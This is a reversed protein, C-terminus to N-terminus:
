PPAAGDGPSPEVLELVHVVGPLGGALEDDAARTGRGRGDVPGRCYVRAGLAAACPPAIALVHALRGLPRSDLRVFPDRECSLRTAGILSCGCPRRECSDVRATTGESEGEGAPDRCLWPPSGSGAPRLCLRGAWRALDVFAGDVDLPRVRPEAEAQSPSAMPGWCWPRGDDLACGQDEDSGALVATAEGLAQDPDGHPLLERWRPSGGSGPAACRLRGAQTVVCGGALSRIAGLEREVAPAADRAWCWLEGADSRACSRAPSCGLETAPPLGEVRTLRDGGSSGCFVAGDGRRACVQTRRKPTATCLEVIEGAGLDVTPALVPAESALTLTELATAIAQWQAAARPARCHVIVRSDATPGPLERMRGRLGGRSYDISGDGVVSRAGTPLPGIGQRRLEISCIPAFSPHTAPGFALAFGPDDHELRRWDAPLRLEVGAAALEVGDAALEVGDPSPPPSPAEDPQTRGDVRSPEARSSCGAALGTSGLAILILGRVSAVRIATM